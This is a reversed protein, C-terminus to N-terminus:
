KAPEDNEIESEGKQKNALSYEINAQVVDMLVEYKIADLVMVVQARDVKSKNIASIIDNTLKGEDTVEQQQEADKVEEKGM